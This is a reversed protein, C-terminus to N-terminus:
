IVRNLGPREGPAPAQTQILRSCDGCRIGSTIASWALEPFPVLARVPEGCLVTRSEGDVAHLRGVPSMWAKGGTMGTGAM